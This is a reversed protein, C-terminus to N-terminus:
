ELHVQVNATTPSADCSLGEVDYIDYNHTTKQKFIQDKIWIYTKEKQRILYVKKRRASSVSQMIIDTRTERQGFVMCMPVIYKRVVTPHIGAAFQVNQSFKYIGCAEWVTSCSTTHGLSGHSAFAPAPLFTRVDSISNSILIAAYSTAQPSLILSATRTAVIM